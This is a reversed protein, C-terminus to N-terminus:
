FDDIEISATLLTVSGADQPSDILRHKGSEQQEM